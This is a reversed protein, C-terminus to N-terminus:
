QIFSFLAHGKGIHSTTIFGFLINGLNDIKQAVGSLKL